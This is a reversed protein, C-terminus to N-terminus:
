AGVNSARCLNRNVSCVPSDNETENSELGEFYDRQKQHVEPDIRSDVIGDYYYIRILNPRHIYPPSAEYWGLFDQIMKAYEINDDNFLDLFLKRVYGGDIFIVVREFPKNSSSSIRTYPSM